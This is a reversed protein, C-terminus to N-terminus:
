SHRRRKSNTAYRLNHLPPSSIDPVFAASEPPNHFSKPWYHGSSTPPSTIQPVAWYTEPVQGLCDDGELEGDAALLIQSSDSSGLKGSDAQYFVCFLTIITYTLRYILQIHHLIEIHIKLKYLSYLHQWLFIMLQQGIALELYGALMQLFDFVLRFITFM